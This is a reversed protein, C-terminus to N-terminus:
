KGSYFGVSFNHIKYHTGHQFQNRNIDTHDKFRNFM